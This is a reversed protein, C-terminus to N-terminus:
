CEMISITLFLIFKKTFNKLIKNTILGNGPSKNTPLDKITYEIEGLSTPKASLSM